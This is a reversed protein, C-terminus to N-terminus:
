EGLSQLEVQAVRKALAHEPIFGASPAALEGDPCCPICDNKLRSRVEVQRRSAHASLL